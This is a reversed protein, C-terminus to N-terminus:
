ESKESVPVMATAALAPTTPPVVFAHVTAFEPCTDPALPMTKLLPPRALVTLLVPVTTPVPVVPVPANSCDPPVTWFWPSIWPVNWPMRMLPPAPLTPLEPLTTLVEPGATPKLPPPLTALRPV